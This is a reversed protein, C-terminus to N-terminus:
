IKSREPLRGQVELASPYGTLYGNKFEEVIASLVSCHQEKQKRTQM